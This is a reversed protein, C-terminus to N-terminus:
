SYQALNSLLHFPLGELTALLAFQVKAEVLFPIMEAQPVRGLAVVKM